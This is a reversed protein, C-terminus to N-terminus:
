FKVERGRRDEDDWEGVEVSGTNEEEKRMMGVPAFISTYLTSEAGM